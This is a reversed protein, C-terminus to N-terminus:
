SSLPETACVISEGNPIVRTWVEAHLAVGEIWQTLCEVTVHESFEASGTCHVELKAVARAEQLPGFRSKIEAIATRSREQGLPIDVHLTDNRQEQDPGTFSGFDDNLIWDYTLFAEGGSVTAERDFAGSCDPLSPTGIYRVQARGWTGIFSDDADFEDNYCAVPGVVEAETNVDCTLTDGGVPPPVSLIVLSGLLLLRWAGFSGM